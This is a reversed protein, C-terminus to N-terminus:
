HHAKGEATLQFAEDLLLAYRIEGQMGSAWTYTSRTGQGSIGIRCGAVISQQSRVALSTIRRQSKEEEDQNGKSLFSQQWM